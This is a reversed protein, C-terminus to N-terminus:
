LRTTRGTSYTDGDQKGVADVGSNVDVIGLDHSPKQTSAEGLAADSILNCKMGWGLVNPRENGQRASM